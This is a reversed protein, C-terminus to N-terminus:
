LLHWATCPKGCPTRPRCSKREFIALNTASVNAGQMAKAPNDALSAVLYLLTSRRTLALATTVMPAGRVRARLTSVLIAKGNTSMVSSDLDVELGSM